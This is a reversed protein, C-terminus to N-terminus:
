YESVSCSRPVLGQVLHQSYSYLSISGLKSSSGTFNWFLAVKTLHKM